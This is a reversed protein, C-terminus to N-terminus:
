YVAPGQLVIPKVKTQARYGLLLPNHSVCFNEILPQSLFKVNTLTLKKQNLQKLINLVQQLIIATNLHYWM